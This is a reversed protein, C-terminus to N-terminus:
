WLRSSGTAKLIQEIASRVGALEEMNRCRNALLRLAAFLLDRYYDDAAREILVLLSFM